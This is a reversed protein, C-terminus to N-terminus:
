SCHESFAMELIVKLIWHFRLCVQCGHCVQSDFPLMLPNRSSHPRFPRILVILGPKAAHGPTTPTSMKERPWGGGQSLLKPEPTTQTIPSNERLYIIANNYSIYTINPTLDRITNLLIENQCELFSKNVSIVLLIDICIILYPSEDEPLWRIHVWPGNKKDSQDLDGGIPRFRAYALRRENLDQQAMSLISVTGQTNRCVKSTLVYIYKKIGLDVSENLLNQDSLLDVDTFHSGM